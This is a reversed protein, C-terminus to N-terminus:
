FKGFSFELIAKVTWRDAADNLGRGIAFHLPVPTRDTEIAVYLTQPREANLASRGLPGLEAYYEFGLAIGEAVTRAVKLSPNFDPRSSSEPGNLDWDLVPNAAVLWDRNKWGVIPRLELTRTAPEFNRTLWAYEGNLGAFWGAEGEAPRLPLWKLRLKPGGFLVGGEDDRTYPLYLGAELTETLGWSFEPTVRVAHDPTVEGPFEPASRGSPTTNVHLELGFEGPKNIDDTYVQIEDPLVARAPLAALTLALAAALKKM